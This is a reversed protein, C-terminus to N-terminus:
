RDTMASWPPEQASVGVTPVGLLLGKALLSPKM